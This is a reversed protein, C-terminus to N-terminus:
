RRETLYLFLIFLNVAIMVGGLALGIVARINGTVAGYTSERRRKVLAIIGCVFAALALPAGIVPICGFLGCFFSAMAWGSVGIPVLLGTALDEDPNPTRKAIRRRKRRYEEEEDDDDDDHPRRRRPRDDDSEARPRKKEPEGEQIGDSM